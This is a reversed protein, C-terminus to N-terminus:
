PHLPQLKPTDQNRSCATTKGTVSNLSLVLQVHSPTQVYSMILQSPGERAEEVAIHRM